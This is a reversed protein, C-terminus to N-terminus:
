LNGTLVLDGRSIDGPSLIVNIKDELGLIECLDKRNVFVNYPITQSNRLNLNGGESSGLTSNYQLRLSTSYRSTVFLSSSPVPGDDPLRLVINPDTALDGLERAFESNM